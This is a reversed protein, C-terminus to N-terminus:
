ITRDYRGGIEAQADLVYHCTRSAAGRATEARVADVMDLPCGNAVGFLEIAIVEPRFSANEPYAGDGFRESNYHFIRRTDDKYPDYMVVREGFKPARTPDDMSREEMRPPLLDYPIEPMAPVYDSDVARGSAGRFWTTDTSAGDAVMVGSYYTPLVPRVGGFPGAYQAAYPNNDTRIVVPTSRGQAAAEPRFILACAAIVASVSLVCSFLRM